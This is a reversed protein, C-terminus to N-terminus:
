YREIEIFASGLGENSSTLVPNTVTTIVVYNYGQGYELGKHGTPAGIINNDTNDRGIGVSILESCNSSHALDSNTTFRSMYSVFIEFEIYKKNNNFATRNDTVTNVRWKGDNKIKYATPLPFFMYWYPYNMQNLPPKYLTKFITPHANKGFKYLSIKHSEYPGSVNSPGGTHWHQPGQVIRECNGLWGDCHHHPYMHTMQVGASSTIAPAPGAYRTIHGGVKGPSGIHIGNGVLGAKIYLNGYDITLDGTAINYETNPIHSIKDNNGSSNGPGYYCLSKFPGATITGPGTAGVAGTAGTAGDTGDAGDAGNTGAPGAPGAPGAAGAAGAAGTTGTAGTTGRLTHSFVHLANATFIGGGSIFSLTFSYKVPSTAYINQQLVEYIGFNHKADAQTIQLYGGGSSKTWRAMWAAHDINAIDNKSIILTTVASPTLSNLSTHGHSTVSGVGATGKLMMQISTAGHVGDSGTAGAPGAPGPAGSSGAPGRRGQGTNITRPVDRSLIM